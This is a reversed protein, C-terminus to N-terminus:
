INKNLVSRNHKKRSVGVEILTFGMQMNFIMVLVIYMWVRDILRSLQMYKLDVDERIALEL